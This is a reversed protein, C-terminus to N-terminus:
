KTRGVLRTLRPSALRGSRPYPSPARPRPSGPSHSSSSIRSRHSISHIVESTPTIVRSQGVGSLRQAPSAAPSITQAFISSPPLDPMVSSQQPGTQSGTDMTSTDTQTSADATQQGSPTPQTPADTQCAVSVMARAPIARDACQSDDEESLASWRNSTPIPDASSRGRAVQWGSQKRQLLLQLRKRPTQLRPGAEPVASGLPVPVPGPSQPTEPPTPSRRTAAPGPSRPTVSPSCPQTVAPEPSQGTVPGPSHDVVTPEAAQPSGVATVSPAVGAQPAPTSNPTSPGQQEARKRAETRSLGYVAVWRNIMFEMRWTPCSSDKVAHPGRCAVCRLTESDCGGTLHPGACRGCRVPRRCFRAHHNYGQCRGCRLPYPVFPRTEIRHYLVVVHEPCSPGDFTLVLLAGDSHRGRSPLRRVATVGQSSLAAALEGESEESAHPAYILGQAKQARAPTFHVPLDTQGGSQVSPVSFVVANLLRQAQSDSKAWVKIDGSPLKTILHVEGGALREVGRQIFSASRDAFSLRSDTIHGIVVISSDAPSFRRNARWSAMM